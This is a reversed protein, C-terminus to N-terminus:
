KDKKPKKNLRWIAHLLCYSPIVNYFTESKGQASVYRRVNSLNGLMDFGDLQIILNGNMLRKSLRANWVLEDDNMNSDDYGRRSYMTLDTAFQMNWPLEIQASLGYQFSYANIPTFYSISGVSRQWEIAGTASFETKDNPRFNVGLNDKINHNKVISHIVNLSDSGYFDVSNRFQYGVGEKIRWKDGKGIPFDVDANIYANWNGNINMPMSTTFNDSQRTWRRSGIENQRINGSSYASLLTRGFKNRYQVSFNYSTINKLNPNFLNRYQPNSTNHVDLQYTLSPASISMSSYVYLSMGKQYNSLQFSLSPSLFVTNRSMTTDAQSGQWYDMTEHNMPLRLTFNTWMNLKSKKLYRSYSYRVVPTHTMQSTTSVSSNDADLTKLLEEASPLMGIDHADFDKWDDLLQLMYLHSNRQQRVFDFAHGLSVSHGKGLSTQVSASVNGSFVSNYSPTYKNQWVSEKGEKPYDLRYHSYSDSENRSYQLSYDMDISIRDNYRPTVYGWGYARADFRSGETKGSKLIRDIAYKKLLEGATPANISDLWSKGLQYAVDEALSVSASRSRNNWKRYEATPRFYFRPNKFVGLWDGSKGLRLEQETSVNYSYSRYTYFSKSFQDKRKTVENGEADNDKVYYIDSGSSHNENLADSYTGRLSGQYRSDDGFQYMGNVGLKVSTTLGESQQLPSWEGDERGPDRYDNLNNLNAFASFRSKDDFRLVLFRGLYKTERNGDWGEKYPAGAGGEANAIWGGNFEKKLKVNMVLEKQTEAERSTGRVREPAREYAQVSKVMYSPLNELILNRDSNFFDKGNLLLADVKQGNVTIEGDRSLTVGPLKKILGDLMSGEALNFADADYVLTDGDMYFKLKTAKVVVEDLDINRESSKPLKHMYLPKITRTGERKHIKDLTFHYYATRYGNARVRFLYKGPKKFSWGVETHKGNYEWTSVWVSDVFSSDAAMLLEAEVSDSVALHTIFDKVPFSVYLNPEKKKEAKVSDAAVATTDGKATLTDTKVGSTDAKVSDNVVNINEFVGVPAFASMATFVCIFSLFLIINAKKM